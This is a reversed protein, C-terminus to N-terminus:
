PHCSGVYLRGCTRCQFVNIGDGGAVAGFLLAFFGPKSRLARLAPGYGERLGQAVAEPSGWGTRIEEELYARDLPGAAELEALSPGMGENWILTSLRQCCVPWTACETGRNSLRPTSLLRRRLEDVTGPEPAPGFSLPRGVPARARDADTVVIVEPETIPPALADPDLDRAWWTWVQDSVWAVPSPVPPLPESTKRM